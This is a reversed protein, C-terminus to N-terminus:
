ELASEIDALMRAVAAEDLEGTALTHVAEVTTDVWVLVTVDATPDLKYSPPGETGDFVTLPTHEVGEKEGFAILPEEAAAPDDSMLVLFAAM